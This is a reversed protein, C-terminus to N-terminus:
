SKVAQMQEVVLFLGQRYEPFLPVAGGAAQSVEGLRRFAEAAEAWRKRQAFIRGLSAQAGLWPWEMRKDDYASLVATLEATCRHVGPKWSSLWFGSWAVITSDGNTSMRVICCTLRSHVWPERRNM